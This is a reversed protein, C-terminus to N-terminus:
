ETAPSSYLHCSVEVDGVPQLHPEEGETFEVRLDTPTEEVAAVGQWFRVDPSEQRMEAILSALDTVSADPSPALVAPGGEQTALLHLNAIRSRELDYTSARTKLWHSEMTALLDRAEWGCRDFAVPCRPHFACGRPPRAADPIEGTLLDATKPKSPDPDPIAALLAKTYPHKPSEFIERTSGVEVIKGLYMIAIRNCFFKASALDHTIYLYTLDLQARLDLMLQLMKARVSMDLMSIPEDAVLVSPNMIISRAIVVRQRQGGSLDSPYKTLFLEVPSLGVRELAEVIRPGRDRAPIGHIRLPDGVAQEVTMAPNLAANPDQFIIQVDRRIERLQRKSMTALDRGHLRISGATIPAMGLLARGLTSKGSGSEGVVGLVEGKALSLSIGDVAKVTGLSRGVLRALSSGGLSFHVSLDAVDVVTETDTDPKTPM